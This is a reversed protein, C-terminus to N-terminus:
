TYCPNILRFLVQESENCTMVNRLDGQLPALLQRPLFRTFFAHVQNAFRPLVVSKGAMLGDYGIQAVDAPLMVTPSKFLLSSEMHAEKVFNTATAGPCLCTITVGTGQLENYLAESFSLVYAKSAYYVAMLPGPQFAATSGLNLIKGSKQKVMAPLFLHTLATLARINLDIMSLERNIDSEVFLSNTALGANNVLIDITLSHKQCYAFVNQPGNFDSLDQPFYHAKIGHQELEISVKKLESEDRAVLVLDYDNRAFCRALELGIGSTAGTILVTQKQV